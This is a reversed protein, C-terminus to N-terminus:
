KTFVVDVHVREGVKSAPETLSSHAKPAAAKAAICAACEGLLERARDVDRPTLHCNTLKGNSMTQKLRVDSPHGLCEHLKRAAKARDEMARTVVPEPMRRARGSKAIAHGENSEQTTGESQSSGQRGIYQGTNSPSLRREGDEDDQDDRFRKLKSAEEQQKARFNRWVCRSCVGLKKERYFELPRDCEGCLTFERPAGRSVHCRQTSVRRPTQGQHYQSSPVKLRGSRTDHAQKREEHDEEVQIYYDDPDEPVASVSGPEWEYVIHAQKTVTSGATDMYRRM